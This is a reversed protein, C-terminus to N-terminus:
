AVEPQDVLATSWPILFGAFAAYAYLGDASRFVRGTAMGDGVRWLDAVKGRPAILGGGLSVLGVECADYARSWVNKDYALYTAAYSLGGGATNYISSFTMRLPMVGSPHTASTRDTGAYTTAPTLAVDASGRCIVFTPNTWDSPPNEAKGVLLVTRVAGQATVFVRTNNGDESHAAHIVMPGAVNGWSFNQSTMNTGQDTATPRATTSGGTFGAAVSYTLSVLWASANNWDLCLQLGSKWKLVIWSHAGAAAVIAAASTFRNFGDLAATTGNSSGLVEPPNLSFSTLVTVLQYGLEKAQLDGTSRAPVAQGGNRTYQYGYVPAGIIM